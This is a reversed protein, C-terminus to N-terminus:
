AKKKTRKATSRPKRTNLREELTQLCEDLYAQVDKKRGRRYGIIPSGPSDIVYRYWNGETEEGPADCKALSLVTCRPAYPRKEQEESDNGSQIALNAQTM